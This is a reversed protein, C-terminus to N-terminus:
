TEIPSEVTITAVGSKGDRVAKVRFQGSKKETARLYGHRDIQAFEAPEVSWQVQRTLDHIRGTGAVEVAQLQLGPADAPIKFTEPFIRFSTEREITKSSPAAPNASGNTTPLDTDVVPTGPRHISKDGGVRGPLDSRSPTEGSGCGAQALICVLLGISRGFNPAMRSRLTKM